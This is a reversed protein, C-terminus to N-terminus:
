EKAIKGVMTTKKGEVIRYLYMGPVLRHVDIVAPVGSQLQETIVMRGSVDQIDMEVSETSTATYVVNLVDQAPNPYVRNPVTPAPITGGGPNVTTGGSGRGGTDVPPIATPYLLTDNLTDGVVAYLWGESRSHAWMSTNNKVSRLTTIQPTDLTFVNRGTARNSILIDMIHRGQTFDNAETGTLSYTEVIGNYVTNASDILSDEVLLNATLLAGYATGMQGAWYYLSDRHLIGNTDTMYYNVNACAVAYNFYAPTPTVEDGSHGISHGDPNSMRSGSAGGTVVPGTPPVYCNPANSYALPSVTASTYTLPAELALVSSYMYYLPYQQNYINYVFGDFKTGDPAYGTSVYSYTAQAASIGGNPITDGLVAIDYGTHTDTNCTYQLGWATSPGFNNIFNSLMATEVGTITNSAVQNPDSGTNDELAGTTYPYYHHPALSLHADADTQYINNTINYGATGQVLSGINQDNLVEVGTGYITGTPGSYAPINFTNWMISNAIGGTVVVGRNNNNFTSNTLNLNHTGSFYQMMM